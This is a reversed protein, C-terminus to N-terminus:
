IRKRVSQPRLKTSEDAILRAERFPQFHMGHARDSPPEELHIKAARMQCRAVQYSIKQHVSSRGDMCLLERKLEQKRLPLLHNVRPL